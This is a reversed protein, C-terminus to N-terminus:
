LKKEIRKRYKEVTTSIGSKDRYTPPRGFNFAYPIFLTACDPNEHKLRKFELWLRDYTDIANKIRETDPQGKREGKYGELMIIWSQEYIGYLIKGYRTSVRLYHLTESDGSQMSDALAVIETWLRVSESKEALMKETLGKDILQKFTGLFVQDSAIFHDRSWWVNIPTILSNKGRVIADASLLSLRHFRKIDEGHFGQKQAYKSFIDRESVEPNRAWQSLVYTNVDSWLENSIYPGLWGGGRSWTWIGAFQSTNKLQNLSHIGPSNRLEEFGNLVGAAIYSPYAGKGEYERQCQIEIVQQHKGIGLTPNFSFTRHYDGKTHKVCLYLNPHSPISDTVSLYYHPRTHFGDFGWTRYFVKKGQKVCVEERLLTMLDRHVQIGGDGKKPKLVPGNGTHYPLNHLYTEGVRIVLGDLKPFRQFVERIMLRHIEQTKPRTFDIKGHSDCIEKRYIKVLRKPLVIIDMFYYAELGADHIEDIKDTIRGALADIWLREKSNQPFIDSDLSDYTIAAHVSQFENIVQANFGYERLKSPKNFTSKTLPEGPNHHVMDMIVWDTNRRLHTDTDAYLVSGISVFVYLLFLKIKM